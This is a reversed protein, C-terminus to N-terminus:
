EVRREMRRVHRPRLRMRKAAEVQTLHGTRVEHLVKLRERKRRNMSIREQEM